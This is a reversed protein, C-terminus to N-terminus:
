TQRFNSNRAIAPSGEEICTMGSFGTVGRILINSKEGGGLMSTYVHPLFVDLILLSDSAGFGGSRRFVPMNDSFDHQGDVGEM